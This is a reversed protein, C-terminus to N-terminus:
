PVLSQCEERRPCRGYDAKSFKELVIKLGQPSVLFRDFMALPVRSFKVVSCYLPYAYLLGIFTKSPAM